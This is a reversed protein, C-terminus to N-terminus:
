IQKTNKRWLQEISIQDIQCSCYRVNLLSIRRIFTKNRSLEKQSLKQSTRWNWDSSEKWNGSSYLTGDCNMGQNKEVRTIKVSLCITLNIVLFTQYISLYVLSLYFSKVSYLSIYVISLYVSLCFSQYVSLCYVSTCHFLFLRCIYLCISFYFSKVSLCTSLLCIFLYVVLLNRFIIIRCLCYLLWISLNAIPIFRCISVTLCYAYLCIFMPFVSLNLFM